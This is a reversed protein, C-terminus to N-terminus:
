PITPPDSLPAPSSPTPDPGETLMRRRREGERRIQELLPDPTPTSTPPALLRELRASADEAPPTEPAAASPSPAAGGLNAPYQGSFEELSEEPLLSSDLSTDTSNLDTVVVDTGAGAYPSMARGDSFVGADIAIAGAGLAGVGGAIAVARRRALGGPTRWITLVLFAVAALLDVVFWEEREFDVKAVPNYLIAAGILLVVLSRRGERHMITALYISGATVCLRLLDYFGYPPDFLAAILLLATIGAAATLEGSREQM